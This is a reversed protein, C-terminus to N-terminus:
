PVLYPPFSVNEHLFFSIKGLSLYVLASLRREELNAGLIFLLIVEAQPLIMSCTM